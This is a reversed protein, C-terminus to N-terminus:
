FQAQVYASEAHVPVAYHSTGSSTIYSDYSPQGGQFYAAEPSGAMTASLSSYHEGQTLVSSYPPMSNYIPLDAGGDPSSVYMPNMQLVPSGTNAVHAETTASAAKVQGYWLNDVARVDADSGSTFGVGSTSYMPNVQLPPNTAGAMSANALSGSQGYWLNDVARGDGANAANLAGLDTDQYLDDTDNVVIYDATEGTSEYAPLWMARGRTGTESVGSLRAQREATKCSGGRPQIAQRQRQRERSRKARWVLVAILALLLAGGAAGAAAGIVPPAGGSERSAAATPPSELPFTLNSSFNTPRTSIATVETSSWLANTSSSSYSTALTTPLTSSVEATSVTGTPIPSSTEILAPASTPSGTQTHPSSPWGVSAPPM